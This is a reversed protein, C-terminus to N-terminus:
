LLEIIKNRVNEDQLFFYNTDVLTYKDYNYEQEINKIKDLTIMFIPEKKLIYEIGRSTRM